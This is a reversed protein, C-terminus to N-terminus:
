SFGWCITMFHDSVRESGGDDSDDTDQVIFDEDDSLAHGKVM